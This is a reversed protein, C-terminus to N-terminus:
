VSVLSCAAHLASTSSTPGCGLRGFESDLGGEGPERALTVVFAKQRKRQGIEGDGGQGGAAVDFGVIEERKLGRWTESCGHLSVSCQKGTV